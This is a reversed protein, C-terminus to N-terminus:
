LSMQSTLNFFVTHFSTGVAFFSCIKYICMDFVYHIFVVATVDDTWCTSVSTVDDTWCTSVSTVDDTWCTSVSTVDDTWCTSRSYERILVHNIWTQDIEMIHDLEALDMKFPQNQAGAGAAGYGSMSRVLDDAMTVPAMKSPPAGSPPPCPGLDYMSTDIDTFLVDDLAFDTLFSGTSSPSPPPPLPPPLPPPKEVEQFVEEKMVVDFQVQPPSPPGSSSSSSSSPCLEEIEELASSFSDKPSPSAPPRPSHSHHQTSTSSSSSSSSSSPPLTFFMPLDEDLLSAPTLCSDLPTLGSLSSSLISFSSPPPPPAQRYAEDETAPPAASFFLAGVGGEQRFDDHIRRIVNNILVRRQLGLDAGTRPGYLKMLSVNLVTQRQLTYSAHSMGGAVLPRRDEELVDEDEDLKRKVGNGLM